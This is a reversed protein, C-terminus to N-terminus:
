QQPAVPVVQILYPGAFRELVPKLQQLSTALDAANLQHIADRLDQMAEVLKTCRADKAEADEFHPNASPVPATQQLAPLFVEGIEYRLRAVVREEAAQLSSSLLMIILAFLLGLLTIYFAFSLGGTVEVLQVKIANVDSIQSGLFTAFKGVALAIGIVTGILGLVPLAWIAIRLFNYSQHLNEEDNVVHERLVLEADQLDPKMQWQRLISHIWVLPPILRIRDEIHELEGCALDVGHAKVYKAMGHVIDPDSVPVLVHLRARRYQCLTLASFFMWCILGPVATIIKSLDFIAIGEWAGAGVAAAGLLLGILVSRRRISQSSLELRKTDDSPFWDQELLDIQLTL